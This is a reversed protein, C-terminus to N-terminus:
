HTTFEYRPLPDPWDWSATLWTRMVWATRGNGDVFPHASLFHKTWLDPDAGQVSYVLGEMVHQLNSAPAGTGGDRFTVPTSRLQDDVKPELMYAITIIEDLRPWPTEDSAYTWALDYGRLLLEVMDPGTEQRRCEEVALDFVRWRRDHDLSLWGLRPGEAYVYSM